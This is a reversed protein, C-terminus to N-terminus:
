QMRLGGYLPGYKGVEKGNLNDLIRIFQDANTGNFHHAYVLALIAEKQSRPAYPVKGNEIRGYNERSMNLREAVREQTLGRYERWAKIYTSHRNRPPKKVPPM